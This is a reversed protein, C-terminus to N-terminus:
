AIVLRGVIQLGEGSRARVLVGEAPAPHAGALAGITVGHSVLVALEGPKLQAVFSQVEAVHAPQLERDFINGLAAWDDSRGFALRATDRARCWPSNRVRAPELGKTAFWQGVRRAQARGAEDLNRQTACDDLRYGPPDGSGATTRAHRMLVAIGGARLEALPETGEAWALGSSVSDFPARGGFTLLGVSGAIARLVRRRSVDRSSM